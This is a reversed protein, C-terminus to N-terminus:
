LFVVPWRGTGCLVRQLSVVHPCFLAGGTRRAATRRREPRDPRDDFACVRPLVWHTAPQSRERTRPLGHRTQGETRARAVLLRPRNLPGPGRPPSGRPGARPWGGVLRTARGRVRCTGRRVRLRHHPQNASRHTNLPTGREVSKCGDQPLRAAGPLKRPAQFVQPALTTSPGGNCYFTFAATVSSSSPAAPAGVAKKRRSSV